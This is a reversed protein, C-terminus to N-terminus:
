ISICDSTGLNELILQFDPYSEEHKENLLNQPYM